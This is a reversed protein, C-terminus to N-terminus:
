RVCPPVMLLALTQFAIALAFFGAVVLALQALWPHVLAGQRKRFPWAMWFAVGCVILSALGWAAGIGARSCAAHLLASLGQQFLFWAFPPLLLATWARARITMGGEAGL